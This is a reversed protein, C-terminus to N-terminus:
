YDKRLLLRYLEKTPPETGFVERVESITSDVSTLAESPERGTYIQRIRQLYSRIHRDARTLRLQLSSLAFRLEFESACRELMYLFGFNPDLVFATAKKRGLFEHLADLIQQVAVAAQAVEALVNLPLTFYEAQSSADSHSLLAVNEADYEAVKAILESLREWLFQRHPSQYRIVADRLIETAELSASPLEGGVAGYFILPD